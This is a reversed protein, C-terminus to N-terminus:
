DFHFIEFSKDTALHLPPCHQPPIKGESHSSQLVDMQLSTVEPGSMPHGCLGSSIETTEKIKCDSFLLTVFLTM